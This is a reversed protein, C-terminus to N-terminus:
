MPSGSVPAMMGRDGNTDSRSHFSLNRLRMRSGAHRGAMAASPRRMASFCLATVVTVSLNRVWQCCREQGWEDEGRGEKGERGVKKGRKEKDRM